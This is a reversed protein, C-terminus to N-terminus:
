VKDEAAAGGFFYDFAEQLRELSRYKLALKPIEQRHQPDKIINVVQTIAKEVSGKQKLNFLAGGGERKIIDSDDGVGETLLVPLGNAWYEGIKVPSLAAKSQGAKYTAFALDAASLWAPVEKHPVQGVFVSDSNISQASLWTYIEEKPQPTLIILRFSPILRFCEEYIKFAEQELYLGGYKGVYIGIFKEQWKLVERVRNRQQENFSFTDFDVACPAVYMRTAPVGEGILQKAYNYTVPILGAATKKQKAEWYKQFIFKLGYRNWIGSDLMYAAHPEFLTVYYPLKTSKWVKYALAGSPAGHAFLMNVKHKAAITAVEKPFYIFDSVKTLM